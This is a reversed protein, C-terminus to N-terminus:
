PRAEGNVAANDLGALATSLEALTTSPISVAPGNHVGVAPSALSAELDRWDDGNAPAARQEASLTPESAVPAPNFIIPGSRTHFNQSLHFPNGIWTFRHYELDEIAGNLHDVERQASQGRVIADNRRRILEDRRVVYKGHAPDIECFGYLPPPRMIDSEAPVTIKIGLSKATDILSQCGSRQFYWEETASMDVGWLGIEKAGEMIALAIMWAITSSFDSRDFRRDVWVYPTDGIYIKDAEAGAIEMGDFTQVLQRAYVYDLVPGIPYPRSNPIEPQQQLTFVPGKFKAMYQIYEPSFWPKGPEWKHIEFWVNMRKAVPYLGPSCGWLEWSPDDFPALLVSSPASGMIGIKRTREM